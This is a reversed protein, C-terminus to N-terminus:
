GGVPTLGLAVRAARVFEYFRKRPAARGELALSPFFQLRLAKSLELQVGAGTSGRNCINNPHVGQLDLRGHKRVDFGADHLHHRLTAGLADDRGGLYAIAEDNNKEGHITIVVDAQRAIALGAPEDFNGSTIHLHQNGKAKRGEFLYLSLEAGAIARAVESTGGEISGGHPAVLAVQSGRAVSVIRYADAPECDHLQQFTRYKDARAM